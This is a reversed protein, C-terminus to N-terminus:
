AKLLEIVASLFALIICVHFFALPWEEHGSTLSHGWHFQTFSFGSLGWGWGVLEAYNLKNWRHCHRLSNMGGVQPIVDSLRCLVDLLLHFDPNTEEKTKRM